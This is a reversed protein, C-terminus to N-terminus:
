WGSITYLGLIRHPHSTEKAEPKVKNQLNQIRLDLYTRADLSLQSTQLKEGKEM